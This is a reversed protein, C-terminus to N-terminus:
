FPITITGGEVDLALLGRAPGAVDIRDITLTGSSPLGRTLPTACAPPPDGGGDNLYGIFARGVLTGAPGTVVEVVISAGLLSPWFELAFTESTRFPRHVLVNGSCLGVSFEFGLDGTCAARGSPVFSPDVTVVISAPSTAGVAGSGAIAIDDVLTRRTGPASTWDGEFPWRGASSSHCCRDTAPCDSPQHGAALCAGAFWRCGGTSGDCAFVPEGRGGCDAHYLGVVGCDSLAPRAGGCAVDLPDAVCGTAVICALVSLRLVDNGM